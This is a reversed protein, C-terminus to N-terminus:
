RLTVGLGVQFAAIAERGREAGLLATYDASITLALHPRFPLDFGLGATISAHSSEDRIVLPDVERSNLCDCYYTRNAAYGVGGRVFVGARATPYAQVYTSLLVSTALVDYLHPQTKGDLAVGIPYEWSGASLGGYIRPALRVAIRGSFRRTISCYSCDDPGATANWILNYAATGQLGLEDTAQAALPTAFLSTVALLMEARQRMAGRNWPVPRNAEPEIPKM